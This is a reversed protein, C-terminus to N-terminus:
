EWYVYHNFVTKPVRKLAAKVIGVTMDKKAFFFVTDTRPHQSMQDYSIVKESLKPDNGEVSWDEDIFIVKDPDGLTVEFPQMMREHRDRWKVLPLFARYFLGDVCRGNIKVRVSDVSALANAVATAEVITLEDDFSVLVDVSSNKSKQRLIELNERLNGKKFNLSVSSISDKEDWTLKFQRKDGKHLTCKAKHAGYVVGQEYIGDFVLASQSISYLAFVAGPMNTAAEPFGSALRTGGAYIISGLAMGEPMDTEVFEEFHPELEIRVGVPWLRCTTPDTARGRPLGAHELRNLFSDVSEDLLFMTEYDRDTDRAALFFELPTGKEVGTATATFTIAAALLSAIM